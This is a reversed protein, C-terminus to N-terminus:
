GGPFFVSSCDKCKVNGTSYVPNQHAVFNSIMEVRAVVSFKTVKFSLTERESKRFSTCENQSCCRLLLVKYKTNLTQFATNSNCSQKLANFNVTIKITTFLAGFITSIMRSITNKKGKGSFRKWLIGLLFTFIV